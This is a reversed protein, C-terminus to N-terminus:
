TRAPCPSLHASPVSGAFRSTYRWSSRPRTGLARASRSCSPGGWRLLFRESGVVARDGDLDVSMGFGEDDEIHTTRTLKAERSWADGQRRFLCASGGSGTVGYGGVLARGDSLAVSYGFWEYPEGETIPSSEHWGDPMRDFVHVVGFGAAQDRRSSALLTRGEVAVALGFQEGGTGDRAFLKASYRWEGDIREYVYVVGADAGLSDDGSHGVVLVNEALALELEGYYATWDSVPQLRAAYVWGRPRREFVHIWGGEWGDMVVAIGDGLLVQYGFGEEPPFGPPLLRASEIWEHGRREYIRAGPVLVEDGHVSISNVGPPDQVSFEHVLCQARASPDILGLLLALSGWGLGHSM